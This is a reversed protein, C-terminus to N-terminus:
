HKYTGSPSVRTGYCWRVNVPVGRGVWCELEDYVEIGYLCITYIVACRIINLLCHSAALQLPM